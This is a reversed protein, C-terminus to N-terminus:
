TNNTSAFYCKVGTAASAANPTNSQRFNAHRLKCISSDLDTILMLM